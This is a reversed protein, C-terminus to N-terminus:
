TEESAQKNLRVARKRPKPNGGPILIRLVKTGPWLKHSQWRRGVGGRGAYKFLREWDEVDSLKGFHVTMGNEECFDLMVGLALDTVRNKDTVNIWNLEVEGHKNLFHRWPSRYTQVGSEKNHTWFVRLKEMWSKQEKTRQRM